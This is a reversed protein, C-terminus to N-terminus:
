GTVCDELTQQLPIRPTWGTDAHLRSSDGVIDKPDNPRIREEDVSVEVPEKGMLKKLADIIDSGSVSKGSSVNYTNHSLSPATAAMRYAAVVDRVDTYDRRTKINGVLIEDEAERLQEIMDPVLFGGMQGPGIHNFPRMVVYDLGRSRYYACQNEVLLKSVVYPSTVGTESDETLPMDQDPSYIAGSSVVVFRPSVAGSRLYYEAMQTIMASNLDIYDQPRDFSPDVAALGALHIITDVESKLPWEKALDAQHYKEVLNSINNHVKDEQGIGIVSIGHGALERALHKGVFGNVGTIAITYHNLESM